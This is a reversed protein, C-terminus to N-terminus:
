RLFGSSIKQIFSYIAHRKRWKNLYRCARRFPAGALDDSPMGTISRM